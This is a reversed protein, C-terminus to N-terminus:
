YEKRIAGAETRNVSTLRRVLDFRVEGAPPYLFAGKGILFEERVAIAVAM